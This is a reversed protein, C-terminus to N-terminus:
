LAILLASSLQVEYARFNDIFIVKEASTIAVKVPQHQLVINLFYVQVVVTIIANVILMSVLDM